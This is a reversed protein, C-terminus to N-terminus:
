WFHLKIIELCHTSDSCIYKPPPSSICGIHIKFGSIGTLGCKIIHRFVQYPFLTVVTKLNWMYWSCSKGCPLWVNKRDTRKGFKSRIGQLQYISSINIRGFLNDQENEHLGSFSLLYTLITLYTLWDSLLAEDLRSSHNTLQGQEEFYNEEFYIKMLYIKMLIFQGCFLSRKLILQKM